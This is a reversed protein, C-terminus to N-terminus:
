IFHGLFLRMQIKNLRKVYGFRLCMFAVCSDVFIDLKVANKKRKIEFKIKMFNITNNHTSNNGAWCLISHSILSKNVLVIEGTGYAYLRWLHFFFYLFVQAVDVLSETFYRHLYKHTARLCFIWQKSSFFPPQFYSFLDWCFYFPNKLVNYVSSVWESPVSQTRRQRERQCDSCSSCVFSYVHPLCMFM